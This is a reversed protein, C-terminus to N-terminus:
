KYIHMFPEEGPYQIVMAERGEVSDIYVYVPAQAQLLNELRGSIFQTLAIVEPKGHSQLNMEIKMEDLNDDKYRAKGVTGVQQGFFDDVDDKFQTFSESLAPQVDRANSSPFVLSTESINEWGQINMDGAGVETMRRFTGPNLSGRPEERFIAFTIPVEQLEEQSRMRQLIDGAAEEAYEIAYEEDVPEEFFNLRGDETETRFYYVSRVSIGVVIGGLEVGDEESGRFYNHEVINSLVLPADRMREEDDEGDGLPPNLGASEEIEVAAEEEEADFGAADESEEEEEEESPEYRRLWSNVLEGDFHNGEQFYYNEQDFVGSAIEMLGLEFQEIDVRNNMAHAVNGRASSRSYTGDELVNRYYADPTNITPTIVFEQEEEEETEEVVIVEEEPQNITPMCGTLFLLSAGGTIMWRKNM